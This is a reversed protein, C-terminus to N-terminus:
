DAQPLASQIIARVQDPLARRAEADMGATAIPQHVTFEITSSQIRKTAEWTLWSGNVTIPVIVADAKTALKFSGNRFPGLRSSRSRTGEPYICLARGSRIKRVGREISQKGKALSNRNLFVSGIVAIWINIFPLFLAQSKIIFGVGRPSYALMMVFDMDGQHNSVFVLPGTRPIREVGSVVPTTGTLLIVSRAWWRVVFAIIPRSLWRLRVLDLLFLVCGLPTVLLVTLWFYLFFFLTRIM